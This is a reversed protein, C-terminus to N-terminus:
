FALLFSSLTGPSEPPASLSSIFLYVDLMSSLSLYLPPVITICANVSSLLSFGRISHAPAYHEWKCHFSVNVKVSSPLNTSSKTCTLLDFSSGSSLKPWTFVAVICLPLFFVSESMIFCKLLPGPTLLCPICVVNLLASYNLRTEAGTPYCTPRSRLRSFYTSALHHLMKVKLSHLNLEAPLPSFGSSIRKCVAIHWVTIYWSSASVLPLLYRPQHRGPPQYGTVNLHHRIRQSEMSQLGGPEESLIKWGLISSHTAIKKELTDEGGLSRVWTEQM